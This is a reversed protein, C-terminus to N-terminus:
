CGSGGIESTVCENGSGADEDGSVLSEVLTGIEPVSVANLRRGERIDLAPYSARIESM